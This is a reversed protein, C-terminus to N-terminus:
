CSWANRSWRPLATLGTTNGGPQALSAVLGTEVADFSAAMVIPITSTAQQAARIVPVSVAVIIDVKLNVLETAAAPSREVAGGAM